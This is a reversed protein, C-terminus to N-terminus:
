EVVGNAKFLWKSALTFMYNYTKAKISM